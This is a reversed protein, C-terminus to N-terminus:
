EGELRLRHLVGPRGGALLEEINPQDDREGAVPGRCVVDGSLLAACAGDVAVVGAVRGHPRTDIREHPEHDCSMRTSGILSCGCPRASCDQVTYQADADLCTWAGTPGAGAHACVRNGLMALDDAGEPLEWSRSPQEAGLGLGFGGEPDWCHLEGEALVCGAAENTGPLVQEVKALAARLEPTLEGAPSLAVLEASSSGDAVRARIMVEGQADVVAGGAIDRAGAEVVLAAEAESGAKWCSVAGEATRACAWAGECALQVAPALGPVPRLREGVSQGCSVVGDQSRVCVYTRRSPTGTCLEAIAPPEAPAPDLQPEGLVKLSDFAAEIATWGVGKPARCHVIVRADESPGPLELIRGRLPGRTYDIAGPKSKAARIMGRPLEGLGQRRLEITCVPIKPDAADSGVAMAFNPEAENVVEWTGPLVLEVGAAALTVPARELEEEPEGAPTSGADEGGDSAKSKSKGQCGLAPGVLSLVVGLSALSVQARM